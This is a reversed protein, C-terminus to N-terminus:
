AYIHSVNTEALEVVALCLEGRRFIDMETLRLDHGKLHMRLVSTFVLGHPRIVAVATSCFAWNSVAVYRQV